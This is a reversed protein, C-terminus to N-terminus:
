IGEAGSALTDAPVAPGAVTEKSSLSRRIAREATRILDGPNFPKPLFLAGPLGELRKADPVYGSIFVVGVCPHTARLRTALERGDLGPMILDTILLDITQNVNVLHLATEADEAEIVNYGQAELAFRALKRIGDEDEALLISRGQGAKGGVIQSRVTIVSSPRPSSECWPLGIRFTTGEGPASEVEIQGGAQEIIGYVTALGLGTGKGPEKTTFFPEFIRAKVEDTM